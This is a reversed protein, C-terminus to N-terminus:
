PNLQVLDVVYPRGRDGLPVPEGPRALHGFVVIYDGDHLRTNDWGPGTPQFTDAATQSCEPLPPVPVISSLPPSTDSHDSTGVTVGNPYTIPLSRPPAYIPGPGTQVTPPYSPREPLPGPGGPLASVDSVRGAIWSYDPAHGTKPYIGPRTSVPPAPYFAPAQLGAFASAGGLTKLNEAGLLGLQVEYASGAAEPHLEMKALEFYQVLYDRGNAANRETFAESLPYGLLTLSGHAKWYDLFKGSVNHGTAPFYQGTGGSVARAFPAETCRSAAALWGLDQLQVRYVDPNAPNYLFVTREFYQVAYGNFPFVGTLPMGFQQLGGNVRWFQEFPGYVSTGAQPFSINAEAMDSRVLSLLSAAFAVALCVMLPIRRPSSSPSM